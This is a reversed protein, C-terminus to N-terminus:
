GEPKRVSLMLMAGLVALVGSLWQLATLREGFLALSGVGVLFPHLQLVGSSVEAGLRAISAYYLM